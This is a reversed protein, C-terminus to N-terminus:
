FRRRCNPAQYGRRAQYIRSLGVTVHNIELTKALEYKSIKLHEIIDQIRQNISM